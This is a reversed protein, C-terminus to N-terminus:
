TKLIRGEKVTLTTAKKRIREPLFEVSTTTIIAQGSPLNAFLLERNVEDLEGAVDDLLLTPSKQFAKAFFKAQALKLLIVAQRQQARSGFAALDKQRINHNRTEEMIIKFDDRHPGFVTALYRRELEKQLALARLFAKEAQAGELGTVANEYELLLPKGVIRAAEQKLIQNLTTVVKERVLWVKVGLAALNKDWIELEAANQNRTKLLRNKNRLARYYSILNLLYEKDTTGILRDLFRRRLEPPGAILEIEQPHFFVTSFKGLLSLRNKLKNNVVIKTEKERSLTIQISGAETEGFVTAEEEDWNIAESKTGRFTTGYALLYIAELVNTKGQGNEGLIVTGDPSLETEPIQLNRFNRVGLVKLM